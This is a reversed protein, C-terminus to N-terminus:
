LSNVKIAIFSLYYFLKFEVTFLLPPVQTTEKLEAIHVHYTVHYYVPWKTSIKEPWRARLDKRM